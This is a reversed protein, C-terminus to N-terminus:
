WSAWTVLLVKKGRFDTLRVPRGTRDPITIDPAIRGESFSGSLAQIEGFSWVGEASDAVVAQRVKRAFATLNFYGGRRMDKTIPICIDARCAGQPKVEFDNLRPLDRTRVWLMTPEGSEVRVPAVSIARDSYLVTARAVSGHDRAPPAIAAASALQLFTRRKM